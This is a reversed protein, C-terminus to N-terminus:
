DKITTSSSTGRHITRLAKVKKRKVLVKVLRRSKLSVEADIEVQKTIQEGDFSQKGRKKAM